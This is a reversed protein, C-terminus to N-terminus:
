HNTSVINHTGIGLVLQKGPGLMHSTSINGLLLVVQLAAHVIDSTTQQLSYCELTDHNCGFLMCLPCQCSAWRLCVMQRSSSM